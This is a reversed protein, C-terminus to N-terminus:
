RPDAGLWGSVDPSIAGPGVLRRLTAELRDVQTAGVEDVWEQRLDELVAGSRQVLDLGHATLQLTKRRADASDAEAFVYGLAVLQDVTKSAAQKSVGTAQGLATATTAGRSIAQVAFGIAPRLGPHGDEALRRHMEDILHRFGGLLLLPLEHGAM